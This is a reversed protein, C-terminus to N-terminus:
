ASSTSPFDTVIYLTYHYRNCHGRGDMLIAALQLFCATVCGTKLDVNLTNKNWCVTILRITTILRRGHPYMVVFSSIRQNENWSSQFLWDQLICFILNWICNFHNNTTRQCCCPIVMENNYPTMWVFLWLVCGCEIDDCLWIETGLLSLIRIWLNSFNCDIIWM